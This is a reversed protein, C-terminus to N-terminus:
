VISVNHESYKTFSTFSFSSFSTFLVSTFLVSTFSTFSAWSAILGTDILAILLKSGATGGLAMLNYSNIQVFVSSDHIGDACYLAMEADIAISGALSSGVVCITIVSMFKTWLASCTTKLPQCITLELHLALSTFSTFM